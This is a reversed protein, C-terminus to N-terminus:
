SMTEPVALAFRAKVFVAEGFGAIECALRVYRIVTVFLPGEGAVFTTMVSVKGAPILKPEAFGVTPEQVPLLATVQLRPPIARPAVATMLIMTVGCLAPCSLLVAPTLAVSGSGSM